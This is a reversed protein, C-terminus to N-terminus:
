DHKDRIEKAIDESLLGRLFELEKRANKATNNRVFEWYPTGECQLLGTSILIPCGNCFGDCIPTVEYLYKCLACTRGSGDDLLIADRTLEKFRVVFEWKKISYVLASRISSIQLSHNDYDWRLKCSYPYDEVVFFGYSNPKSYLLKVLFYCFKLMIMYLHGKVRCYERDVSGECGLRDEIIQEIFEQWSM